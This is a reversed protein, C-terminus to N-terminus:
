PQTLHTSFASPKGRRLAQAASKAERARAIRVDWTQDGFAKPKQIVDQPKQEVPRKNMVAEDGYM